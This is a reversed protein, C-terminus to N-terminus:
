LLIQPPKSPLAGRVLREALGLHLAARGTSTNGIQM